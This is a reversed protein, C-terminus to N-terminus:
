LFQAEASSDPSPNLTFCRNQGEPVDKRAFSQMHRDLVKKEMLFRRLFLDGDVLLM